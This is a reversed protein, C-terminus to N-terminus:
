KRKANISGLPLIIQRFFTDVIKDKYLTSVKGPVEVALVQMTINHIILWQELTGNEPIQAGSM